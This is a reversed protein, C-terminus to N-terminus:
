HFGALGAIRDSTFGAEDDALQGVLEEYVVELAIFRM